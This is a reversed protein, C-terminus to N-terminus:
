ATTNGPKGRPVQPSAYKRLRKALRIQTDKSSAPQPPPPPVTALLEPLPLEPLPLEPLPPEPEPPEPEPPEPEPPEPEPPEPEPPEPDVAYLTTFAM